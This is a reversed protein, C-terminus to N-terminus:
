GLDMVLIPWQSGMPHNPVPEFHPSRFAEPITSVLQRKTPFAYTANSKGYVDITDIERRDWGTVAALKDRDPFRSDFITPIQAVRVNPSGQEAGVAMALRFKFHQFSSRQRKEIAAELEEITEPQDPALFVRCAFRGGPKLCGAVGKLLLRLRDPYDFSILSGDGICGDFSAPAFPLRLWDGIVARRGPANGPWLDGVLKRSQDIATIDAGADLLGSTMGLLLIPGRVEAVEAKIGAIAESAARVPTPLM